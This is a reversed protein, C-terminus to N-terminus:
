VFAPSPFRLAAASCCWGSYANNCLTGFKGIGPKSRGLGIEQIVLRANLGVILVAFVWALVKLPLSTAFKGMRKKDSTFHILPIIAFGLQLSLVVQSLILLKGL